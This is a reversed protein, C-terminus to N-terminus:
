LKQGKKEKIEREHSNRSQKDKKIDKVNATFPEKINEQPV